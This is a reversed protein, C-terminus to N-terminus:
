RRPWPRSPYRIPVALSLADRGYVELELMSSLRLRAWCGAVEGRTTFTETLSQITIYHIDDIQRWSNWHVHGSIAAVVFPCRSLRERAAAANIFGARQKPAREFYYNGIMSHEGLPAHTFVVTPEETAALERELWELSQDSIRFGYAPDLDQEPYWFILRWGREVVSHHDLLTDLRRRLTAADNMMLDHNGLLHTTPVDLTRFFDIIQQQREIDVEPDDHDNIRDGLEVVRVADQTRLWRAFQELLALAQSGKKTSTDEGYHLDGIIALELKELGPDGGRACYDLHQPMRVCITELM